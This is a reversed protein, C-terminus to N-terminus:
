AAAVELPRSGLRLQFYRASMAVLGAGVESIFYSSQIMFNSWSLDVDFFQKYLMIGVSGAYGMSDAMYILFGANAKDEVAALLRDFLLCNFPIYALYVCTSHMIMWTQGEINGQQF